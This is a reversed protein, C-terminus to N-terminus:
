ATDCLNRSCAQAARQLFEVLEHSVACTVQMWNQVASDSPMTKGKVDNSAESQTNLAWFQKVFDGPKAGGTLSHLCRLRLCGVQKAAIASAMALASKPIHNETVDLKELM